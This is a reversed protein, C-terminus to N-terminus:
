CTMRFSRCRFSNTFVFGSKAEGADIRFPMAQEHFYADIRRNTKKAWTRHSKWAAELPPFYNRDVTIPAFWSSEGSGNQVEFWVPQIRKKHLKSDFLERAEKISPM